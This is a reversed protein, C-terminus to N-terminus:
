SDTGLTYVGTDKQLDVVKAQLDETQKKLDALQGNLWESSESTAAYRTQFGYEKLARVLSNVVAPAVKRDSHFYSIEILRTGAVPKVTLHAAFVKLASTRRRPSDELNAGAPDPPSSSPILGMVWELPNWKPEFDKTKDLHLEEIVKLALEDSQLIESETQLDLNANLADGSGDSAAGAMMSPLDLMDASNKPIELVGKGEFRPTTVVCALVGLAFCIAITIGILKRRRRLTLFLEAMTLENGRTPIINLDDVPANRRALRDM